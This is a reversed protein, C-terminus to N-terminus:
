WFAAVVIAASAPGRTPRTRKCSRHLILSPKRCIALRRGFSDARLALVTQNASKGAIIKGLERQAVDQDNELLDALTNLLSARVSAFSFADPYPTAQSFTSFLSAILALALM